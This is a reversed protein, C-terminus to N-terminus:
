VSSVERGLASRAELLLVTLSQYGYGYNYFGHPDLTGQELNLQMQAVAISEDESFVRMLDVSSISHASASWMASSLAGVLALCVVCISGSLIPGLRASRAPITPAQM